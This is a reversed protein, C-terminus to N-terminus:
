RWNIIEKIKTILEKSSFINILFGNLILKRAELNSIGKSQLYDLEEKSICGITANHNAIVHSNKVLINPIITAFGENINVLRINELLNNHLKNDLDGNVNIIAQGKDNIGRINLIISSKNGLYNTEINLIYKENNIFSHNYIISSEEHVNIVIDTKHSTIIRFDNVILSSKSNVTINLKEITEDLITVVSNGKVELNVDKTTLFINENNIKIISDNMNLKNM